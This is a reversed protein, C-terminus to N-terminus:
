DIAIINKTYFFLQKLGKIYKYQIKLNSLLFLLVYKYVFVIEIFIKYENM